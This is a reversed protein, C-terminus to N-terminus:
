SVKGGGSALVNQNLPDHVTPTTIASRLTAAYM